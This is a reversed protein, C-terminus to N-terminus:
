TKKAMVNFLLKYVIKMGLVTNIDDSSKKTVETVLKKNKKKSMRQTRNFTIREISVPKVKMISHKYFFISIASPEHSEIKILTM